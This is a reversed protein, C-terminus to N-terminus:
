LDIYSYIGKVYGYYKSVHKSLKQLCIHQIQYKMIRSKINMENNSSLKMSRCNKQTNIFFIASLEKGLLVKQNM